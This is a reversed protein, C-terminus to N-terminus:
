EEATYAVLKAALGKLTDFSNGNGHVFCVCCETVKNFLRYIPVGTASDTENRIEVPGTTGPKVFNHLSLAVTGAYDLAVKSPNRLFYENFWRNEPGTYTRIEAMMELISQVPGMVFGSNAFQYKPPNNCRRNKTDSCNAYTSAWDEPVGITALAGLRRQETWNEVSYKWGLDEPYPSVEAAMVITSSGNSAEIVQNYKYNLINESCGGYLVDGSSHVAVLKDANKRAWAELWKDLAAKKNRQYQWVTLEETPNVLGNLHKISEGAVVGGMRYASKPASPQGNPLKVSAIVVAEPPFGAQERITQLSEQKAYGQSDSTLALEGVYGVDRDKNIIWPIKLIGQKNALVEEALERVLLQGEVIGDTANGDGSGLGLASACGLGVVVLAVSAAPM